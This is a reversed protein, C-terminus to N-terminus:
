SIVRRLCKPCVGFKAGKHDCESGFRANGEKLAKEYDEAFKLAENTPKPKPM